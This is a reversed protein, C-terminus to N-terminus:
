RRKCGHRLTNNNPATPLVVVKNPGSIGSMGDTDLSLETVAGTKESYVVGGNYSVIQAASKDGIELQVVGDNSTAVTTGYVPFSEATTQGLVVLHGHGFAASVPQSSTKIVQMPEMTNGRRVFITVNTSGFNVVAALTGEVAVGGANGSVGGAGGTPVFDMEKTKTNVIALYNTNGNTATLFLPDQSAGAATAACVLPLVALLKNTYNCKRFM